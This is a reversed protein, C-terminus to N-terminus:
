LQEDIVLAAEGDTEEPCIALSESCLPPPEEVKKTPDYEEVEAIYYRELVLLCIRDGPHIEIPNSSTNHVLVYVPPGLPQPDVCTSLISFRRHLETSFRGCLRGYCGPPFLLSLGTSIAARQNPSIVKIGDEASCLTYGASYDSVREPAVAYPSTKQYILRDLNSPQITSQPSM